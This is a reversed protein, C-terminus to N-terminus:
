LGGTSSRLLTTEQSDNLAIANVRGGNGQSGLSAADESNSINGGNIGEVISSVVIAELFTATFFLSRATSVNQSLGLSTFLLNSIKGLNTEIEIFDGALMLRRLRQYGQQSRGAGSPLSAGVIGTSRNVVGGLTYATSDGFGAGLLPTDTIVAEMVFTRPQRVVQDVSVVGSELPNTPVLMTENTTESIVGDIKIGAIESSKSLILNEFAM